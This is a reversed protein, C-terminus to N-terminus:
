WLYRLSFYTPPKDNTATLGGYTRGIDFVLKGSQLGVGIAGGSGNAPDRIYGARVHLREDVVIDTGLRASTSDLSTTSVLSAAGHVEVKDPGREFAVVMYDAGLDVRGPRGVTGAVGLNRAAAGITLPLATPRLQLGVDVANSQSSAIGLGSCEGSCPIAAEVHKATIGLALWPFPAAAYTAAVSYDTPSAVGVSNGQEDTLTQQGLDLVNVAVGFASRAPGPLLLALANGQGVVTTSHHLAIEHDSASYSAIGAPNWWLMDSGGRQAVVAEGMGVARAGVPLLLFIAEQGSQAAAVSACVGGSALLFLARTIARRGAKRIM